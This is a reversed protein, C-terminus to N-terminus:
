MLRKFDKDIEEINGYLNMKKTIIPAPNGIGFRSCASELSNFTLEGDSTSCAFIYARAFTVDKAFHMTPTPSRSPTLKTFMKM